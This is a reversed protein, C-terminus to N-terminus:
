PEQVYRRAVYLVLAGAGFLTLAFIVVGGLVPTYRVAWLVMFAAIIALVRLGTTVQSRRGFTGLAVEGIYFIGILFGIFLTLFYLLLAILALWIGFLTAFLLAIVLPTAAIFSFGLGLSKWPSHGVTRAAGVSANPFLLYLVIGALILGINFVGAALGGIIGPSEDEPSLPERRITGKVKADTAIRADNRSYYTLNGTIVTGKGIEINEGYLEVDGGVEGAIIIRNGAVKLGRAVKGMVTVTGGGLWARGGINASPTLLVQGGAVIADDVVTGSVTVNGGAVRVDDGVRARVTVNGGAAIVDASVQNEITLQGGAVVVDGEVNAMVHISNGALYLDEKITGDRVITDGMEPAAHASLALLVATFAIFRRLPRLTKM